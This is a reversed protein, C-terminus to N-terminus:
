CKRRDCATLYVSFTTIDRFRHLISVNNSCVLLINLSIDNNAQDQAHDAMKTCYRSTVFLCVSLCVVVAYVASACCLTARYFPTCYTFSKWSIPMNFLAEKPDLAMDHPFTELIDTPPRRFFHTSPFFFFRACYFLILLILSKNDETASRILPTM